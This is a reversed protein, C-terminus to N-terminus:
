ENLVFTDIFEAVGGEDNSAVVHRAARKVAEDANAVAGSIGAYQIMGLDNFYDGIAATQAQPIGLKEAIARLGEGKDVGAALFELYEAESETAEGGAAEIPGVIEKGVRRKYEPEALLMIKMIEMKEVEAASAYIPAVNRVRSLYVDGWESDRVFVLADTTYISLHLNPDEALTLALRAAALPLPRSLVTKRAEDVVHAGNCGIVFSQLELEEAFPLISQLSRGSALVVHVGRSAARRIAAASVPHPKRRSDLLTHDLDVALLRAAPQNKPNM